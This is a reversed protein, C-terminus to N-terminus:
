KVVNVSNLKSVKIIIVIAFVLYIPLLFLKTWYDLSLHITIYIIISSVISWLIFNFFVINFENLGKIQLTRKTVSYNIIFSVVSHIVFGLILIKINMFYLGIIIFVILLAKKIFELYLIYHTKGISKFINRNLLEQVIFYLSVSFARLYFVAGMWKQGYILYIISDSYVFIFSSMSSAIISVLLVMKNYSKYFLKNDGRIKSLHSFFVNNIVTNYLTEVVTILSKSHYYFGVDSLSFYRGLLLNYINNFVSNILNSLTTNFGFSFMEKFSLKCFVVSKFARVKIVLLLSYVLSNILHLLVLSWVSNYIWAHFIALITSFFFALSKYKARELFRMERILKSSPVVSFSSIIPILSLVRIIKNLKLDNYFLAIYPAIFYLFLFLIFSIIINFVFITSYDTDVIDKKQILAGGLGGEVMTGAFGIFFMVIGLQGFITPSLLRTLIVNGCFGIFIYIIQGLLTHISGRLLRGKM